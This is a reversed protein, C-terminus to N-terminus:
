SNKEKMNKICALVERQLECHLYGDPFAGNNLDIAINNMAFGFGIELEPHFQLCSGGYGQWGVFGDRDDKIDQDYIHWGANTTKTLCECNHDYRLIPKGMAKKFGEVTLIGDGKQSLISALSAMSFANTHCNASPIEVSRFLAHNFGDALHVKDRYFGDAPKQDHYRTKTAHIADELPRGESSLVQKYILQGFHTFFWRPGYPVLRGMSPPIFTQMATWLPSQVFLPAIDANRAEEISHGIRMEITRSSGITSPSPSPRFPGTKVFKREIRPLIEQRLIEGVTRGKPDVRRVIENVIFGRTMGHYARRSTSDVDGGTDAFTMGENPWKPVANALFSGIKNSKVGKTSLDEFTLPSPIEDLGAEHRMVDAVTLLPEESLGLNVRFEPWFSRLPQEYGLPLYGQDIIWAMVTSTIVKSSSFVIQTSRPGYNVQKGRYSHEIAGWLDVVCKGKHFVSVQAGQHVADELVQREFARKVTTFNPHCYGAITVKRRFFPLLFALVSRQPGSGVFGILYCLLSGFVASTLKRSRLDSVSKAFLFGAMFVLLPHRWKRIAINGFGM